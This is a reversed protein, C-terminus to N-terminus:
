AICIVEPKIGLFRARAGLGQSIERLSKSVNRQDAGGKVKVASEARFLRFPRAKAHSGPLLVVPCPIDKVAPCERVRHNLGRVVGRDMLDALWAADGRPTQGGSNQVLCFAEGEPLARAQIEGASDLVTNRRGERWSFATLVGQAWGGASNRGM